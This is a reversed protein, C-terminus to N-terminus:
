KEARIFLIHMATIGTATNAPYFTLKKEADAVVTGAFLCGFYYLV